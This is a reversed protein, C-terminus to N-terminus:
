LQNFKNMANAKIDDAIDIYPKMAKYDSHGTWKMVVQAPIGLALANCIFTRRGAHTGLLAYKPTVTDIRENGKYYTERVPDNIEALEGLEKLYDNMKQNSIVPLAKHDEFHVGKYKDLIAKSHNNLEIILSDATKVTTVEIHDPKIDSRKLNYVDSYRLGSFCCFLFVDRVRELYQKTPPIKYDKLRNLEEWTLFIVKKPTNKLKPKFSDYAMNQNYGKKFSWRLFWKLYAIQKMTSTNRLGEVDKLFNVYSTLKPEDLTEFTLEKDFKELHKRVAAFKEYTADSWGNQTGCEKIFEGFVEMPAFTLPKQPEEERKESHLSNFAEKVQATTPMTGQVEFEKFINQIETYYRLLDTNIESASQKLKNTCGPKVRQKDTDWKAADIRYGTTFEIRQSAFIVRMRIPVNEVIPVGNKKRSELSFIINRKINM